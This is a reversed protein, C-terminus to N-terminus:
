HRLFCIMFIALDGKVGSALAVTKGMNRLVIGLEDIVFRSYSPCTPIPDKRPTLQYQHTYQRWKSPFPTATDWATFLICHVLGGSYPYPSSLPPPTQDKEDKEVREKAREGEGGRVMERERKRERPSFSTLSGWRAGSYAAQNCSCFWPTSTGFTTAGKFSIM